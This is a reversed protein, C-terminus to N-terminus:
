KEKKGFWSGPPDYIVAYGKRSDFNAIGGFDVAKRELRGENDYKRLITKTPYYGTHPTEWGHSIDPTKMWEFEQIFWEFSSDGLRCLDNTTKGSQTSVIIPRSKEDEPKLRAREIQSSSLQRHTIIKAARNILDTLAM